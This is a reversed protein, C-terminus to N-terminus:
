SRLAEAIEDVQAADATCPFLLLEDCGAKAYEDVTRRLQEGNSIVSKALFQAKVGVHAYYDLVYRSAAARRHEGLAVSALAVMHPLETRGYRGFTERARDVLQPFSSASGGPSIWGQGHRAARRLAADSHGGVWLPIGDPAPRPGVGPVAGRGAWIERLEALMGDLRRGRDHYSTGGARFDDERGGAAVGLVLRGESLRDVSALQKALEAVSPRYAALLVTTALRIRETVAAAAGLAILSDYNDYVMRDFVALTSFGHEDARRAFTVLERGATGPVTTPLGIGIDM